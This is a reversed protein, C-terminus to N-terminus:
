FGRLDTSSRKPLGPAPTRQLVLYEIGHRACYERKGGQDGDENVAYLDPKIRQIEPEADLWGHGSSILARTVFRISGVLYRREGQPLLPHGEGKLLRINADHGVIVYLGGYASVEEFFRVHGSHFWDYCGTVVVKRRPVPLASHREAADGMKLRNATPSTLVDHPNFVRSVASQFDASRASPATPDPFGTLQEASLVVYEIGRAHACAVKATNARCDGVVWVDPRLRPVDPLADPDLPGDVLQVDTVYRIANLFYLREAEPFKPPQGTVEEIARDRWLLVTLEGLKAAEELFRLHCSRLDDFAGSVVIRKPMRPSKV